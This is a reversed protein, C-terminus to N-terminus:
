IMGLVSRVVQPVVAHIVATIVKTLVPSLIMAGPLLLLAWIWPRTTIYTRM